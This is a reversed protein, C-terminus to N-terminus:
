GIQKFFNTKFIEVRGDVWAQWARNRGCACAGAGVAVRVFFIFSMGADKSHQTNWFQWVDKLHRTNRFQINWQLFFYRLPGHNNQTKKTLNSAGRPVTLPVNLLSKLFVSLMAASSTPTTPFLHGGAARVARRIRPHDEIPLVHPRPTNKKWHLKIM